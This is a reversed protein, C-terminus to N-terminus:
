AQLHRLFLYRSRLLYRLIDDRRGDLSSENLLLYEDKGRNRKMEEGEREGEKGGQDIGSGREEEGRVRKNIERWLRWLRYSLRGLRLHRWLFRQLRSNGRRLFVKGTATSRECPARQFYQVLSQRTFISRNNTRSIPWSCPWPDRHPQSSPHLSTSPHPQQSYEVKRLPFSTPIRAYSESSM